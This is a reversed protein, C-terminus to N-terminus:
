LVVDLSDAVVTRPETADQTADGHEEGTGDEEVYEEGSEWAQNITERVSKPSQIFKHFRGVKPDYFIASRSFAKDSGSLEGSSIMEYFIGRIPTAIETESEMFVTTGKDFPRISWAGPNYSNIAEYYVKPYPNPSNDTLTVDVKRAQTPDTM